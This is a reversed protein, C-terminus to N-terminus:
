HLTEFKRTKPIFNIASEPPALNAKIYETVPSIAHGNAILVTVKVEIDNSDLQTTDLLALFGFKDTYTSIMIREVARTDDDAMSIFTAVIKRCYEDVTEVIVHSKLDELEECISVGVSKAFELNALCLERAAPITKVVCFQEYSECHVPMASDATSHYCRYVRKLQTPYGSQLYMFGDAMSSVTFNEPGTFIQALLPTTM